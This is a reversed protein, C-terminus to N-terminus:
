KVTLELKNLVYVNQPFISLLTQYNETAKWILPYDSRLEFIIKVYLAYKASRAFYPLYQKLAILRM